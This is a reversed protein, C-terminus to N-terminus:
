SDIWPRPTVAHEINIQQRKEWTRTTEFDVGAFNYLQFIFFERDSSELVDLFMLISVTSAEFGDNPYQHFTSLLSSLIKLVM